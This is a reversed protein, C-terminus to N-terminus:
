RLDQQHQPDRHEHCARGQSAPPLRRRHLRVRRLGAPLGRLLRHVARLEPVEARRRAHRDPDQRRHEGLRDQGRRVRRALPGPQARRRLRRGVQHEAPHDALLDPPRQRRPQPRGAGARRRDGPAGARGRPDGAAARRLRHGHDHGPRRLRDPLRREGADSRVLRQPRRVGAAAGPRRRGAVGVATRRDHASLARKGPFEYRVLLLSMGVGFLLNIVVASGAVIATLRLSNQM